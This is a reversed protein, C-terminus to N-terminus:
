TKISSKSLNSANLFRHSAFLVICCATAALYLNLAIGRHTGFAQHAIYVSPSVIVLPLWYFKRSLVILTLLFLSYWGQAPTVCLTAIAVIQVATNEPLDPDTKILSWLMISGILLAAMISTFSEPFMKGLLLFREGTTYKEEELYGPLFGLVKTGISLVYFFYAAFVCGVAAFVIRIPSRRILSPTIMAPYFKASFALGIFVGSKIFKKETGAVLAVLIFILALWDIHANNTFELITIPCWAFPGSGM